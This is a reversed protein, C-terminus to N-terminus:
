AQRISHIKVIIWQIITFIVSLIITIIIIWFIFRIYWKINKTEDLIQKHLNLTDEFDENILLKTEYNSM